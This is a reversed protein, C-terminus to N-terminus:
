RDSTAYIMRQLDSDYWVSFGSGGSDRSQYEYGKLVIDVPGFMSIERLKPLQKIRLSAAFREAPAIKWNRAAALTVFDKEPMTCEIMENAGFGTQIQQSVDTASLPLWAIKATHLTTKPASTWFCSM